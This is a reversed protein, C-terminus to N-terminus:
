MKSMLLGASGRWTPNKSVGPLPGCRKPTSLARLSANRGLSASPQFLRTMQVSSMLSGSFGSTILM